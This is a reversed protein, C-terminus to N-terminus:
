ERLEGIRFSMTVIQSPETVFYEVEYDTQYEIQPLNTKGAM